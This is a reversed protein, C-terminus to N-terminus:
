FEDDPLFEPEKFNSKNKYDKEFVDNEKKKIVKSNYQFKFKDNKLMKQINKQITTPNMVFCQIRKKKGNEILTVRVPSSIGIKKVQTKFGKFSYSSGEDKCYQKLDARLLTSQINIDENILKDYKEEFYNIMFRIGIPLNTNKQEQRYDTEYSKYVNKLDYKRNAFYDFACKLFKDDKLEKWLPAFYDYDDAKAGSLSHYSIRRVGSEVYTANENNTNMIIRAFNRCIFQDVGKKEVIEETNTIEGKIRNHNKFATGKDELEEFIKLIRNKYLNNFKDFYRKVDVIIIANNSGLLKCLMKCILGKGCGLTSYFLHGTGKLQGPDQIMDAVFDLFHELEKQEAFFYKSMHNYIKSEEFKMKGYDIKRYELPFGNFLNFTDEIVPKVKYYPIYDVRNYNRFMRREKCYQIFGQNKVSDNSLYNFLYKSKTDVNKLELGFYPNIVKVIVKLNGLVEKVSKMNWNDCIEYTKDGFYNIRKEKTYFYESGGNDILVICSNVWNLLLELSIEKNVFKKYDNYYEYRPYVYKKIKSPLKLAEDFPKESLKIDYKLTDKIYKECQKLDYKNKKDLMIGDFCLVCNKPSKFFDYMKMLIKNEENCLIKNLFSAKLNFTIKQKKKEKVHLKYEDEYKECFHNHINKMEKKFLKIHTTKYKLNNYDNSGGNILALYVKKAEERSIKLDKLLKDRNKVYEELDECDIKEDKCLKLLIVPHANKIDVDIYYDKAITHRVERPFSQLSVSGIAYYRGYSKNQKYKVDIKGHRSLKLYQQMKTLPNWNNGFCSPRLQSKLKDFNNIIHNLKDADFSEEINKLSDFKNKYM